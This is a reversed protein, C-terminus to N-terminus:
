SLNFSLSCFSLQFHFSSLGPQYINDCLFDVLSVITRILQLKYTKTIDSSAFFSKINEDIAM